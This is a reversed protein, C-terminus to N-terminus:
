KSEVAQTGSIAGMSGLLNDYVTQVQGLDRGNAEATLSASEIDSITEAILGDNSSLM